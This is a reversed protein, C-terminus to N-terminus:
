SEEFIQRIRIAQKQTEGGQSSEMYVSIRRYGQKVEATYGSDTSYTTTEPLLRMCTFISNDNKKNTVFAMDCSVIRIEGAQRKIRYPNQRKTRVDITRRPYFVHKCVRNQDIMKFTFFAFSNEKVRENLFEMRWTLPDQKKKENILYDLPKITHKLTISEDFALLCSSVEDKLMGGFAKDVIEWMWHGNDLWSSTIYIDVPREQLDQLNAYEPKFMYPQKRIIQFPSLVSDDIHKDIQRFEERVIAHSRNGRANDNATVVTITSGNRFHVVVESQTTKIAKIERRLAPSKAMLENQIKESVILKSQGRTASAIVIKSGPYLICRCCAYIAIIFSKAAARCAVIVIFPCIGM